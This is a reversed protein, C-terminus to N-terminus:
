IVTVCHWCCTLINMLGPHSVLSTFCATLSSCSLAWDTGVTSPLEGGPDAAHGGVGQVLAGGGPREGGGHLM